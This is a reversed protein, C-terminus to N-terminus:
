SSEAETEWETFPIIFGGIEYLKNQSFSVSIRIPNGHHDFRVSLCRLGQAGGWAAQRSLATTSNVAGPM